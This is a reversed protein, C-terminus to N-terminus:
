KGLITRTRAQENEINDIIRFIEDLTRDYIVFLSAAPEQQGAKATGYPPCPGSLTSAISAAIAEIDRMKDLARALREAIYAATPMPTAPGNARDKAAVFTGGFGVGEGRLARAREDSRSAEVAKRLEDEMSQSPMVPRTNSPVDNM